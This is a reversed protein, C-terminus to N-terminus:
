ITDLLTNRWVKKNCSSSKMILAYYPLIEMFLKPTGYSAQALAVRAASIEKKIAVRREKRIEEPLAGFDEGKYVQKSRFPSQLAKLRKINEALIERQANMIKKDPTKGKEKEVLAEIAAANPLVKRFNKDMM